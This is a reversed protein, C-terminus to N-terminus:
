DAKQSYQPLPSLQTLVSLMMEAWRLEQVAVTETITGAEIGSHGQDSRLFSGLCEKQVDGVGPCVKFLSWRLRWLRLMKWLFEHPRIKKLKSDCPAKPGPVHSSSRLSRLSQSCEQGLLSAWVVQIEGSTELNTTSSQAFAWTLVQLVRAPGLTQTHPRPRRAQAQSKGTLQAAPHKARLRSGPSSGSFVWSLHCCGHAPPGSHRILCM